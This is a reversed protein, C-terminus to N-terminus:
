CATEFVTRISKFPKGDRNVFVWENKATKKLKTLADVLIKKFRVKGVSEEFKKVRRTPNEGEYRKWDNIIV